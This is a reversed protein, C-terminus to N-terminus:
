PNAELQELLRHQAIATTMGLETTISQNGQTTVCALYRGVALWYVSTAAFNGTGALLYGRVDPIQPLPATSPAFTDLIALPAADSGLEVAMVYVGSERQGADDHRLWSRQHGGRLDHSRLALALARYGDWEAVGDPLAFNHDIADDRLLSFGAPVDSIVLDSSHTLRSAGSKPRDGLLIAFMTAARAVDVSDSSISSILERLASLEANLTTWGADTLTVWTKPHRDEIVKDIAVLGNTELVRLHRSLGSDPQGLTDRLTTFGVRGRSAVIALIGLRVRQHAVDDLLRAPHDAM